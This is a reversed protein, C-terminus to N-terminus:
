DDEEYVTYESTETLMMGDAKKEQRHEEYYVVRMHDKYSDPVKFMPGHGPIIYDAVQLMGIRNAEQDESNESNDQWINPRELDEFCEFLDGSIM